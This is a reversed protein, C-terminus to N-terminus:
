KNGRNKDQFQFQFQYPEPRDCTNCTEPTVRVPEFVSEQQDGQDTEEPKDTVIKCMYQNGQYEVMILVPGVRLVKAYGLDQALTTDFAALLVVLVVLVIVIGLVTKHSMM